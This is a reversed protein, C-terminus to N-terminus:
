LGESAGGTAETCGGGDLSDREISIWQSGGAIRKQAAEDLDNWAIAEIQHLSMVWLSGVESTNGDKTEPKFAPTCFFNVPLPGNRFENRFGLYGHQDFNDMSAPVFVDM